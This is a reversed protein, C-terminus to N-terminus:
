YVFHIVSTPYHIDPHHKIGKHVDLLMLIVYTILLISDHIVHHLYHRGKTFNPLYETLRAEANLTNSM